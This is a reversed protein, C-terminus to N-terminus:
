GRAIGLAALLLEPDPELAAGILAVGAAGAGLCSGANHAAVGGLAFLPPGARATARALASLGLAPRGKRAEFIPSLLVADLEPEAASAADHSGRSLFVQPGLYQRADSARLGSEPLHFATAGLARALDAREALGFRQESRASLASLAQGLAWRARLPLAYDRLIFSVSGPRALQALRAFRVLLLAPEARSTDTFVILRPLEGRQTVRAALV